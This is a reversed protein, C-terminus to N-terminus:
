RLEGAGTREYHAEFYTPDGPRDCEELTEVTVRDTEIDRFAEELWDDIEHSWISRRRIPLNSLHGSVWAQILVLSGPPITGESSVLRYVSV